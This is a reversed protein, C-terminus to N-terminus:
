ETRLADIPALKAARTAPYVGFVLGIGIAVVLSGGIAAGSLVISSGIVGPLVLAAIVGLAAGIVGGTLGLIAAEVLFQNRIAGPPAGLAKRLGIERTRETVSVLMINMVGIGGVLLSLAAIGTLLITLTKYVATATSVLADQSSITFDADGSAAIGHRNLLLSKAEQYAAPLADASTAQLYVTSVTNAQSGGVLNSAMTSLPILATDDLNSTSNSGSSALVGIVEFTQSDITVSQGVVRTSGFLEQATESGLVVVSAESNEDAKTIFEGTELTRSRVKLYSPTVGVVTTTWNTSGATLEESASKEADVAKIDPANVKSALATADAQTLTTGTGFGGRVGSTSTSSGPSVILLNSGLSSIQSSVDKQTGLGLGVTLIVAAIGILIGLVTLASRMKHSVIAFWSTRLTEIWSM